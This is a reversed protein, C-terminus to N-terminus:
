RFKCAQSGASAEAIVYTICVVNFYIFTFWVLLKEIGVEVKVVMDLVSQDIKSRISPCPM